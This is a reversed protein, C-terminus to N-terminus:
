SCGKIYIQCFHQTSLFAGTQVLYKPLLTIKYFFFIYEYLYLVKQTIKLHEKSINAVSSLHMLVVLFFCM